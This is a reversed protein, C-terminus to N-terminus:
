ISMPAFFCFFRPGTGYYNLDYFAWYDGDHSPLVIGNPILDPWGDIRYGGDVKHVQEPTLHHVDKPGCCAAKVWAPVQTGDAWQDHPLAQSSKVLAFAFVAAGLGAAFGSWWDEGRTKM